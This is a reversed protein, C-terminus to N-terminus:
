GENKQKKKKKSQSNNQFFESVTFIETETLTRLKSSALKWKMKKWKPEPSTYDLWLKRVFLDGEGADCIVLIDKMLNNTESKTDICWRRSDLDFMHSNQENLIEADFSFVNKEKVKHASKYASSKQVAPEEHSVKQPKQAQLLNTVDVSLNQIVQLAQTLQAEMTQQQMLSQNIKTEANKIADNIKEILAHTCTMFTGISENAKVILVKQEEIQEQEKEKEKRKKFRCTSILHGIKKCFRCSSKNKPVNPVDSKPVNPIDSKSKVEKDKEKNSM